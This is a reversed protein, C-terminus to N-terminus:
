STKQPNNAIRGLNDDHESLLFFSPSPPFQLCNEDTIFHCSSAASLHNIFRSIM